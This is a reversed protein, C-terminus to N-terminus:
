EPCPDTVLPSEFSFTVSRVLEVHELLADDLEGTRTGFPYAFAVPDFGDERLLAISPLAEEELYAALGHEEVYEPADRHRLGHAEISHGDAALQHLKDRREASQRDFRTVFFSVRAGHAALLERLEFWADVHADDFSLSLAARPEGAVLDPYTVFDLGLEGAAALVQEIREVSVTRGPEHAYLSVVEGNEAARELGSRISDLDVDAVDDLGAACLIRDDDWDHFLEDIEALPPRACAALPISALCLLATRRVDSEYRVQRGREVTSDARHDHV